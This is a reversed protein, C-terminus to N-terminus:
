QLLQVLCDFLFMNASWLLKGIEILFTALASTLLKMAITGYEVAFSCAIWVKILVWGLISLMLRGIICSKKIVVDISFAIASTIYYILENVVVSFPIHEEVSTGNYPKYFTPPILDQLRKAAIGLPMDKANTTPEELLVATAAFFIALILLNCGVIKLLFEKKSEPEYAKLNPFKLHFDKSPKMPPLLSKRMLEDIANEILLNRCMSNKSLPKRCQPCTTKKGMWECICEGCFAHGLGCQYVPGRFVDCCIPCIVFDFADMEESGVQNMYSSATSSSSSGNGYKKQMDHM